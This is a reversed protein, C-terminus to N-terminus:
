KKATAYRLGVVGDKFTKAEMLELHLPTDGFLRVGQGLVVPNVNIRYEDILGLQMMNRALTPSGLLWMDKGPQQKLRTFEEALNGKILLGNKEWGSDPLTTSVAIKTATELWEAHGRDRPDSDPNSLVTPWYSAMMQNTVRGYIATDTTTHLDHSYQAVEENYVIWDMEGNPGAVFGDLTAHILFIIKRM